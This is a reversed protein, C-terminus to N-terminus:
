VDLESIAREAGACYRLAGCGVRDRDLPASGGDASGWVVWAEM